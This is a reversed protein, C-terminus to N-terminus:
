PSFCECQPIPALNACLRQETQSMQKLTGKILRFDLLYNRHSGIMGGEPTYEIIGIRIQPLLQLSILWTSM